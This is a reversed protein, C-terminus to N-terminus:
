ILNESIVFGQTRNVYSNVFLGNRKAAVWNPSLKLIRIVDNEFGYGYKTLPKFDKLVGKNTVVFNIIVTHEGSKAGNINGVDANLNKQLYKIWAM